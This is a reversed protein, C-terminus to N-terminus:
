EPDIDVLCRGSLYSKEEDDVSILLTVEIKGDRARGFSVIGQFGKDLHELQMAGGDPPTWALGVASLWPKESGAMLHDMSTEGRRLVAVAGDLSGDVRALHVQVSGERGTLVLFTNRHIQNQEPRFPMGKIRGVLPHDPLPVDAPEAVWQGEVAPPTEEPGAPAEDPPPTAAAPAPDDGGCGAILLLGLISLTRKM